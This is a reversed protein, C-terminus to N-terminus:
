VCYCCVGLVERLSNLHTMLNSRSELLEKDEEFPTGKLKDTTIFRAGYSLLVIRVEYGM